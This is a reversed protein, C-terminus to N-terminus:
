FRRRAPYRHYLMVGQNKVDEEKDKIEDLFEKRMAELEEKELELLRFYNDFVQEESLSMTELSLAHLTADDQLIFKYIHCLATKLQFTQSDFRVVAKKPKNSVLASYAQNANEVAAQLTANNEKKVISNGDEDTDEVESDPFVELVTSHLFAKLTEVTM